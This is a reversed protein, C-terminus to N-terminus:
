FLYLLACCSSRVQKLFDSEKVCYRPNLADSLHSRCYKSALWVSLSTPEYKLGGVVDSGQGIKLMGQNPLRRKVPRVRNRMYAVADKYFDKDIADPSRTEELSANADEVRKKISQTDIEGEKEELCALDGDNSMTDGNDSWESLEDGSSYVLNERWWADDENDDYGTELLLRLMHKQAEHERGKEIQSCDKLIRKVNEVDVYSGEINGSLRLLLLLARHWYDIQGHHLESGGGGVDHGQWMASNNKGAVANVLLAGSLRGLVDKKVYQGANAIRGELSEWEKEVDEPFPDTFKHYLLANRYEKFRSEQLGGYEGFEPLSNKQLLKRLLADREKVLDM